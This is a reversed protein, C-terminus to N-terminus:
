KSKKRRSVLFLILGTIILLVLIWLWTYDVGKEKQVEITLTTSEYGEKSIEIVKSGDKDFKVKVGGNADTRYTKGEVKVDATDVPNGNSTVKIVVEGGIDAKEPVSVNLVKIPTGAEEILKTAENAKNTADEADKKANKYDEVKFSANAANLKDEAENLKIEANETKKGESKAKNIATGAESIASSTKNIADEADEKSIVIVIVKEVCSNNKCEKGEPCDSDKKCKICIDICLSSACEKDAECKEGLAKKNKCINSKCYQQDGCEGDKTCEPLVTIKFEKEDSDRNDVRARLRYTTPATNKPMLIEITITKDEGRKLESIDVTKASWDSPLGLVYVHLNSEQYEGTNKITVNVKATEGAKLSVDQVATIKIEHYGGGGGSSSPIYCTGCDRPCSSCSEGTDCYADGCYNSTSRCINHVCYNGECESNWTCNEGNQKKTVNGIRFTTIAESLVPNEVVKATVMYTGNPKGTTDWTFTINKTELSSFYLIPKKYTENIGNGTITIETQLNVYSVDPNNNTETTTIIATESQTYNEKDTEVTLLISTIIINQTVTETQIDSSSVNIIIQEDGPNIAKLTWQITKNENPSLNGFNLTTSNTTIIEAPLSILASTNAINFVDTNKVTVNITFTDNVIVEDPSDVDISIPKNVVHVVTSGYERHKNTSDNAMVTLAFNDHYSSTITWNILKAEGGSLNGIFKTLSESTTVNAPLFLSISVGSLSLDGGNKVTVQLKFLTNVRVSAPAKPIVTLVPLKLVNIYEIQTDSIGDGSNVHITIPLYGSAFGSVNVKWTITTSGNSALAGINKTLSESTSFYSNLDLTANIGSLTRNLVNKITCNVTFEEGLTINQPIDYTINFATQVIFITEAKNVDDTVKIIYTGEQLNNPIQYLLGIIGETKSNITITETKNYIIKDSVWYQPQIITINLKRTENSIRRNNFLTINKHLTDGAKYHSIQDHQGEIYSSTITDNSNVIQQSFENYIEDFNMGSGNRTSLYILFSEGSREAFTYNWAGLANVVASQIISVNKISTNRSFTYISVLGDTGLTSNYIIVYDVNANIGSQNNTVNGYGPIYIADGVSILPRIISYNHKNDYSPNFIYWNERTYNEAYKIKHEILISENEKDFMETSENITENFFFLDANTISLNTRYSDDVILYPSWEICLGPIKEERSDVNYLIVGDRYYDVEAKIYRDFGPLSEYLDNLIGYDPLQYNRSITLAEMPNLNLPFNDILHSPGLTLVTPHDYIRLRLHENSGLDAAQVSVDVTMHDPYDYDTKDFTINTISVFQNYKNARDVVPSACAPSVDRTLYKTWRLGKNAYMGPNDYNDDPTTDYDPDYHHWENNYYLETVAHGGGGGVFSGVIERAAIGASRANSVLLPAYDACLGTPRQQSCNGNPDDIRYNSDLFDNVDYWWANSTNRCTDRDNQHCNNWKDVAAYNTQWNTNGCINNGNNHSPDTYNSTENLMIHWFGYYSDDIGHAFYLLTMAADEINVLGTIKNLVPNWNRYEFQHLVYLKTGSFSASPTTDPCVNFYLMLFRTGHTELSNEVSVFAEYGASPKFRLYFHKNDSSAIINNNEKVEGTVNYQGVSNNDETQWVVVCVLFNATLPCSLEPILRNLEECRTNTLSEPTHCTTSFSLDVHQGKYDEIHVVAPILGKVESATAGNVKIVEYFDILDTRDFVPTDLYNGGTSNKYNKISSDDDIGIYVNEITYVNINTSDSGFGVGTEAGVTITYQGANQPAKVKIIYNCGFRNFDEIAYSTGNISVKFDEKQLPHQCNGHDDTVNVNMTIMEGAVYYEKNTLVIDVISHVTIEAGYGSIIIKEEGPSLAINEWYMLVCSDSKPSRTYGETYFQMSTNAVYGYSKNHDNCEKVVNPWHAFVIKNPTTDWYAKIVLPTINGGPLRSYASWWSFVPNTFSIEHTHPCESGSCGEERLPSGDNDAIQTDWMYRASVVRNDTASNKLKLTFKVGEGELEIHQEIHVNQVDWTTIAKYQNNPDKYTAQMRYKDLYNPASSKYNQYENNGIKITLMSTDSPYFVCEGKANTGEFGGDAYVHMYFQTNNLTIDASVYCNLWFILLVSIVGTKIWKLNDSKSIKTDM